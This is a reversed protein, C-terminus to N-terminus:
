RGIQEFSCTLGSPWPFGTPLARAAKAKAADMSSPRSVPRMRATPTHPERALRLNGDTVTVTYGSCPVLGLRVSAERQRPIRRHPQPLQGPIEPCFGLVQHPFRLLSGANAYLETNHKRLSEGSRRRPGKRNVLGVWV